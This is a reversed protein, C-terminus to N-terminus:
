PAVEVSRLYDRLAASSMRLWRKLEPSLGEREAFGPVAAILDLVDAAPIATWHSQGMANCHRCRDPARSRCVLSTCVSCRYISKM